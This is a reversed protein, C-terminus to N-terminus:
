HGSASCCHLSEEFRYKQTRWKRLCNRRIHSQENNPENNSKQKAGDEFFEQGFIPPPPRLIPEDQINFFHSKRKWKEECPTGHKGLKKTSYQQCDAQESTGSCKEIGNRCENCHEEVVFAVNGTASQDTGYEERRSHSKCQRSGPTHAKVEQYELARSFHRVTGFSATFSHRRPRPDQFRLWYCAAFTGRGM